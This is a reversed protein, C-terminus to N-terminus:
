ERNSGVIRRPEFAGVSMSGVTRPMGTFDVANPVDRGKGNLRSEPTLRFDDPSEYTASVTGPQSSVVNHSQQVGPNGDYRQVMTRPDADASVLLNNHIEVGQCNDRVAVAQSSLTFEPKGDPHAVKITNGSRVVRNLRTESVKGGATHHLTFGSSDAISFEADGLVLKSPRASSAFTLESASYVLGPHALCWLCVSLCWKNMNTNMLFVFSILRM